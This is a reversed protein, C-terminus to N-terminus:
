VRFDQIRSDMGRREKEGEAGGGGFGWRGLGMCSSMKQGEGAESEDVCSHMYVFIDARRYAIYM